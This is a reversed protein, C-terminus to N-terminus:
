NPISLMRPRVVVGEIGKSFVTPVAKRLINYSGNVDANVRESVGKRKYLGRSERYGSFQVNGEEHGYVPICDGDIFSAQSTYSEEVCEVTIGVRECKYRLQSIFRSHPIGVFSQNNVKGMDVGKKWGDNKGIILKNAGIREIEKVVAKSAKHMYADVKANRKSALRKLRKSTHQGKPLKSKLLAMRKNYYQNISKLPRGNVILPQEGKVNTALTALNNVGLDISVYTRNSKRQEVDPINYVVEIVYRDLKPVIRVCAIDKFNSVKTPVEVNCQSLKVKHAKAFVKKSIAQNTYLVVQRGKTKHLFHPVNIPKDQPIRGEKKAQLSKFYATWNAKVLRLVQQAVKPPLQDMCQEYKMTAYLDNLAYFTHSTEYENRVLYTARNYINKAAFCLKDCENFLSHTPKIFHRETLQM